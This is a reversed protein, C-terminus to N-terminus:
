NDCFVANSRVFWSWSFWETMLYDQAEPSILGLELKGREIGLYMGLDNSWRTLQAKSVDLEIVRGKHRAGSLATALDTTLFVADRRRDRNGRTVVGAISHGLAKQAQLSMPSDVRLERIRAQLEKIVEGSVVVELHEWRAADEDRKWREMSSELLDALRLREKRPLLEDGCLRRPALLFGEEWPQPIGRYLKIHSGPSKDLLKHLLASQADDEQLEYTQHEMNWRLWPQHTAIVIFHNLQKKNRLYRDLFYSEIFIDDDFMSLGKAGVEDTFLSNGNNDKGPIDAPAEHRYRFQVKWRDISAPTMLDMLSRGSRIQQVTSDTFFLNMKEPAIRVLKDM